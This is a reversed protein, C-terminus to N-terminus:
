AIQLLTNTERERDRERLSITHHTELFLLLLLGKLGDGEEAKWLADVPGRESLVAPAARVCM